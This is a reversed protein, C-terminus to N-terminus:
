RTQACLLFRRSKYICSSGAERGSVARRLLKMLIRSAAIVRNNGCNLKEQIKTSEKMKDPLNNPLSTIPLKTYSTIKLRGALCKIIGHMEPHDHLPIHEGERFLLIMAHLYHMM